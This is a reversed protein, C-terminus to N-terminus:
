VKGAWMREELPTKSDSKARSASKETKERFFSEAVRQAKKSFFGEVRNKKKDSKDDMKRRPPGRRLKRVVTM